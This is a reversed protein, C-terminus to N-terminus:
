RSLYKDLIITKLLEALPKYTNEESLDNTESPDAVINYLESKKSNVSYILKLPASFVAIKTLKNGTMAMSFKPKDCRLDPNDMYRLLSEGSMVGPQSAGILELITSAIDVQEAMAKVRAGKVQHPLHIILAIRLVEESMQEGGHFVMGNSFSQGHDSTIILICDNFINNENLFKIFEGLQSDLFVMQEDYRAKLKNIIRCYNKDSKDYTACIAQEERTNFENKNLFMGLYPSKPLYPYHLYNFFAWIFYPKKATTITNEVRPLFGALHFDETEPEQLFWVYKRFIIRLSNFIPKFFENVVNTL